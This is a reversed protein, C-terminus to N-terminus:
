DCYTSMILEATAAPFLLVPRAETVKM